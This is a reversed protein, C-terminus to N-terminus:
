VRQRLIWSRKTAFSPFLNGGAVKNCTPCCAVLNRMADAGGKSRPVVHDAQLAHKGCYRCTHNDRDLVRSRLTKWQFSSYFPDISWASPAHMACYPKGGILRQAMKPCAVRKAKGIVSYSGRKRGGRANRRAGITM